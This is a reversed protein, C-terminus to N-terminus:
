CFDVRICVIIDLPSSMGNVYGYDNGWEVGNGAGHGHSGLAMGNAPKPTNSMSHTSSGLGNHDQPKSQHWLYSQDMM